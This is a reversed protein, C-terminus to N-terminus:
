PRWPVLVSRNEEVLYNMLQELPTRGYSRLSEVVAHPGFDRSPELRVLKGDIAAFADALYDIQELAVAARGVGAFNSSRLGQADHVLEHLVFLKTLDAIKPDDLKAIAELLGQGLRLEGRSRRLIRATLPPCATFPSSSAGNPM